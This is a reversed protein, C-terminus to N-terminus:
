RVGPSRWRNIRRPWPEDVGRRAITKGLAILQASHAADLPDGEAADHTVGEARVKATVTSVRADVRVTVRYEAADGEDRVLEFEYRVGHTPQVPHM